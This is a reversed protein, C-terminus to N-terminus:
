IFNQLCKKHRIKNYGSYIQVTRSKLSGGRLLHSSRGEPNNRLSYHYNRVSTEPCGIPGTESALAPGMPEQGKFIPGSRLLGSSSMERFLAFNLIRWYTYVCKKLSGRIHWVADRLSTKTSFKVWFWALIHFTHTYIYIYIYIYIYGTISRLLTSGDKFRIQCSKHQSWM